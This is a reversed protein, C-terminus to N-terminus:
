RFLFCSVPRSIMYSASTKTPPLQLAHSARPPTCNRISEISTGSSLKAISVMCSITRFNVGKTFSSGGPFCNESTWCFLSIRCYSLTSHHWRSALTQNSAGSKGCKQPSTLHEIRLTRLLTSLGQTSGQNPVAGVSPCLGRSLSVLRSYSYLSRCWLTCPDRVCVPKLACRWSSRVSM